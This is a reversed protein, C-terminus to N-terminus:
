LNKEQNNVHICLWGCSIMLTLAAPVAGLPVVGEFLTGLWAQSADTILIPRFIFTGSSSYKHLLIRDMRICNEDKICTWTCVTSYQLRPEPVPYICSGTVTVSGSGTLYIKGTVTITGSSTLYNKVPSLNDLYLRIVPVTYSNVPVM